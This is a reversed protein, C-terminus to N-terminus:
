RGFAVATLMLAPRRLPARPCTPASRRRPASRASCAFGRRAGAPGVPVPAPRSAPAAPTGAREASGRRVCRSGPAATPSPGRPWCRTCSSRTASSLRAPFGAMYLGWVSATGLAWRPSATRGTSSSTPAGAACPSRTTSACTRRTASRSTRRGADRHHDSRVRHARRRPLRLPRHVGGTEPRAHQQAARTICHNLVRGGPRLRSRIFSFYSPYNRVGIHETLGISSVADFGAETVDRYDASACRPLDGCAGRARDGGAGLGGASAVAHRRARHRRVRARRAPGHRGLRLRHRAAAQGPRLGLKRCVLDYKEAQAQELTADEDGFVACTYTMSPGLVLEYFRNSVDYHHHIAAADRDQSHRMGELLRRWRPLHEEPPPPPPKLHGLGCAASCACWSGRRRYRSGCPRSM